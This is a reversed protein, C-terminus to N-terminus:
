ARVICSLFSILAVGFWFFYSSSLSISGFLATNRSKTSQMAHYQVNICVFITRFLPRVHSSVSRRDTVLLSVTLPLGLLFFSFFASFDVAFMCTLLVSQVSISLSLAEIELSMHNSM